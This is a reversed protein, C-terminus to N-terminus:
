RLHKQLFQIMRQRALKAAAPPFRPRTFDYFAHAAGEYVFVETPTGQAKLDRELREVDALPIFPDAAGYHGQVPVKIKDLVDMVDLKFPGKRSQYAAPNLVPPAYFDVVAGVERSEAAYILAQRAGGCFGMAGVPARKFFPQRRLYDLGATTDRRNQEDFERSSFYDFRERAQNATLGPHRSYTDYALGLFGGQALQAATNRLDDTLGPNPSFIVVARHRGGGKPRALYARMADGGSKFTLEGQEISTDRLALPELPEALKQPPPPPQQQRGFVKSVLASAALTRLAGGLFSRRGESM